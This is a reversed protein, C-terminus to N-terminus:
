WMLNVSKACEKWSQKKWSYDCMSQYAAATHPPLVGIPQRESWYSASVAQPAPAQKSCYKCGKDFVQVVLVILIALMETQRPSLHVQIRFASNTWDCIRCFELGVKVNKTKRRTNTVTRFQGSMVSSFFLSQLSFVLFQWPKQSKETLSLRFSFTLCFCIYKRISCCLHANHPFVHLCLKMNTVNKLYKANQIQFM